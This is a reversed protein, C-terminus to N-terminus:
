QAKAATGERDEHIDEVAEVLAAAHGEDSLGAARLFQNGVTYSDGMWLPVGAAKITAQAIKEEASFSAGATRIFIAAVRGPNEEVVRAFAPLDGQTDDGVLAFRFEGYMHLIARISDSKHSGHSSHGFTRRNLGWDRLLMPGLPLRNVQKFAALYSFLNWPSSSVYFFPRRPAPLM